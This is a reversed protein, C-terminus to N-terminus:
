IAPTSRTSGPSMGAPSSTSRRRCGACPAHAIDSRDHSVTPTLHAREGTAVVRRSIRYDAGCLRSSTEWRWRTPQSTPDAPPDEGRGDGKRRDHHSVPGASRAAMEKQDDVPRVEEAAEGQLLAVRHSADPHHSVPRQARIM